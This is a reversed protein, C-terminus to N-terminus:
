SEEEADMALSWWHISNYYACLICSLPNAAISRGDWVSLLVWSIQVCSSCWLANWCAPHRRGSATYTKWHLNGRRCIAYPLSSRSEKPKLCDPFRRMHYTLCAVLETRWSRKGDVGNYHMYVTNDHCGSGTIRYNNSSRQLQAPFVPLRAGSIKHLAMALLLPDLSCIQERWQTALGYCGGAATIAPGSGHGDCNLLM